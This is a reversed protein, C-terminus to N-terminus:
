IMPAIARLLYALIKEYWPIKKYEKLTVEKSHDIIHLTDLELDKVANSLYLFCSVEYHLYLSRYDLNATGIMAMTGDVVISKAHLFGPVYQYIKVNAELLEKYYSRSVYYVLKKDPIGPLLIRVDIGSLAANKLATNMENDIILYPSSIYVYRKASNIMQIYVNETSLHNTLPGDTFPQVYGDSQFTQNPKYYSFDIKENQYFDWLQFFALTLNWVAEGKLLIANDKWHGFVEIKNIYEDAINIGGTFGVNGDIVAIKRHDRYNTIMTLRPQVPNFALLQIHNDTLRKKFARDIRNICGFDDYLLRVEVGQNAKKILIDSIEQWMYGDELIFYELFIFKQAKALEELLTKFFIEGVPLYITETNQYVPNHTTNEIYQCIKAVELPLDDQINNTAKLLQIDIRQVIRMFRRKNTKSIRLNGFMLYFIVGAFPVALVFLIWSLKYAPNFDRNIISLAILGGIIHSTFYVGIGGQGIYYIAVGILAVQSLLLIFLIFSRTVFLKLLRKIFNM